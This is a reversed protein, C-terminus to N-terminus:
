CGPLLVKNLEFLMLVVCPERPTEVTLLIEYLRTMRSVPFLESGNIVFISVM